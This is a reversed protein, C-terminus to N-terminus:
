VVHEGLDVPWVRWTGGGHLLCLSPGRCVARHPNSPNSYSLLERVLDLADRPAAAALARDVVDPAVDHGTFIKAVTAFQQHSSAALLSYEAATLAPAGDAAEWTAHPLLGAPKATVFAQQDAVRNAVSCATAEEVHARLYSALLAVGPVWVNKDRMGKPAFQGDYSGGAVVGRHAEAICQLYDATTAFAKAKGGAVGPADGKKADAGVLSKRACVDVLALLVDAQVRWGDAPSGKALALTGATIAASGTARLAALQASAAKGRAVDSGDGGADGDAADAGSGGEALLDTAGDLILPPCGRRVFEAWADAFTFGQLPAVEYTPQGTALLLLFAADRLKRSHRLVDLGTVRHGDTVHPPPLDLWTTLMDRDCHRYDYTTGGSMIWLHLRPLPCGVLQTAVEITGFWYVVSNAEGRKALHWSWAALKSEACGAVLSGAVVVEPPSVTRDPLAELLMDDILNQLLMGPLRAMRNGAKRSGADLQRVRWAKWLPLAGDVFVAVSKRAPFRRLVQVVHAVVLRAVDAESEEIEKSMGPLMRASGGVYQSCDIGIHDAPPPPDSRLQELTWTDLVDTHAATRYTGM